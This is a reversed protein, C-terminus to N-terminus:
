RLENLLAKRYANWLQAYESSTLDKDGVARDVTAEIAKLVRETLIDLLEDNIKMTIYETLRNLVLLYYFNRAEEDNDNNELYLQFVRDIILLDSEKINM